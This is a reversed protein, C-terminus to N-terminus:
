FPLMQFYYAVGGIAECSWELAYSVSSFSFTKKEFKLGFLFWIWWIVPILSSSSRCHSSVDPRFCLLSPPAPFPVTHAAALIYLFRHLQIELNLKSSNLLHELCFVLISCLTNESPSQGQWFGARPLLGGLGRASSGVVLAPVGPCRAPCQRPVSCRVQLSRESPVSFFWLPLAAKGVALYMCRWEKSPEKGMYTMIPYQTSNGTRYMEASYVSENTYSKLNWM